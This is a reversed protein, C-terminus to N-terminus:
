RVRGAQEDASQRDGRHSRQQLARIAERRWATADHPLQEGVAHHPGRRGRRPVHRHHRGVHRGAHGSASQRRPRAAPDVPTDLLSNGGPERLRNESAIAMFDRHLAAPLRTTDANWYLIDFAPPEKGLLGNNVVYPWILDNPRLWLFVSALDRGDLYGKKASAAAAVDMLA